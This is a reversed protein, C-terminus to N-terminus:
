PRRESVMRWPVKSLPHRPLRCLVHQTSLTLSNADNGDQGQWFQECYGRAFFFFFQVLIETSDDRM